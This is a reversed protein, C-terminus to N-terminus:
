NCGMANSTWTLEPSTLRLYVCTSPAYVYVPGAYKTYNGLDEHWSGGAARIGMGIGSPNGYDTNNSDKVNVACNYGSSPNYLLVSWYYQKPIGMDGADVTVTYGSGCVSRALSVVDSKTSASANTALPAVVLALASLIVAALRRRM